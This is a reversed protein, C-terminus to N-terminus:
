TRRTAAGALRRMQADPGDERKMSYAPDAKMCNPCMWHTTASKILQGGVGLERFTVSRAALLKKDCPEGCMTCHYAPEPM